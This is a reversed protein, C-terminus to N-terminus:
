PQQQGSQGQQGNQGPQQEWPQPTPTQGAAQTGQPQPASVQPDAPLEPYMMPPSGPATLGFTMSGVRREDAFVWLAYPGPQLEPTLDLPFSIWQPDLSSGLEVEETSIYNGWQDSYVGTIIQGQSAAHLEVAAVITGADTPFSAFTGQPKGDPQLTQTVGLFGVFPYLDPAPTPTATAPFYRGALRTAQEEPLMPPTKLDKEMARYAEDRKGTNCGALSIVLLAAAVLSFVRETRTRAM